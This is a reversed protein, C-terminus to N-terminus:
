LGWKMCVNRIEQKTWKGEAIMREVTSRMYSPVEFGVVKDPDSGPQVVVRGANLEKPKEEVKPLKWSEAKQMDAPLAHYSAEREAKVKYSRMFNSAIVTTLTKGDAEKWDLLQEPIGVLAKSIPPLKEFAQRASTVSDVDMVVKYVQAWAEMESPQGAMRNQSIRSKIDAIKPPFQLTAICDKIAVLVEEPSDDKFMVTWLHLVKDMKELNDTPFAKEGYASLLLNMIETFDNETIM